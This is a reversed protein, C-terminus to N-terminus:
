LYQGGELAPLSAVDVRLHPATPREGDALLHQPGIVHVHGRAEGPQGREVTRLAPVDLGFLERLAREGDALPAEPVLM